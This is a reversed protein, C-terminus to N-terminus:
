KKKGLRGAIIIALFAGGIAGFMGVIILGVIPAVLGALLRSTWPLLNVLVCGILGGVIGVITNRTLHEDDGIIKASATGALLGLLLGPVLLTVFFGETM